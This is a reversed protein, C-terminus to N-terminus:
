LAGGASGARPQPVAPAFNDEGPIPPQPFPRKQEDNGLDHGPPTAMDSQVLLAMNLGACKSRVLEEAWVVTYWYDLNAGGIENGYKLGLFGEAGAKAFVADPFACAEEWEDAHPTFEREVFARVSKRFMEHEETFFREKGVGTESM